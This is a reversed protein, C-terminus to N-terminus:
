FSITKDGDIVVYIPSLTVNVSKSSTLKGNYIDNGYMDYVYSNAPITVVSSKGYQSYLPIITQNKKNDYYRAAYLNETDSILEKFTSQGIKGILVTYAIASDRPALRDTFMSKNVDSSVNPIDMFSFQLFMKYNHSRLYLMKAILHAASDELEVESGAETMLLEENSIGASITAQNFKELPGFFNDTDFGGHIHVAYADVLNNNFYEKYGNFYELMDHHNNATGAQVNLALGGTTVYAKSNVNKIATAAINIVNMYEEVTGCFFGQTFCCDPENWIEWIIDSNSAYRKALETMYKEFYVPNPPYSWTVHTQGNKEYKSAIPDAAFSATSTVTNLLKMKYQKTVVNVIKDYDTFDIAATESSQVNPWSIGDRILNLGMYDATEMISKVSKNDDQCWVNYSSSWSYIREFYAATGWYFESNARENKQVIGINFKLNINDVVLNLTYIGNLNAKFKGRYLHEEGDSQKDFILNLSESSFDLNESASSFSVVAEMDNLATGKVKIWFPIDQNPEFLNTTNQVGFRVETNENVYLSNQYPNSLILYKQYTWGVTDLPESKSVNGAKDYAYVYIEWEGDDSLSINYKNDRIKNKILVIKGDKLVKINFYKIGSLDDSINIEVDKYESYTGGTVSYKVEPSVTDIFNLIDTAKGWLNFNNIIFSFNGLFFVFIFCAFVCSLVFLIRKFLRKYNVM